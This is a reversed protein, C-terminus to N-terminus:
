RGSGAQLHQKFAQLQAGLRREARMLEQHRRFRRVSRFYAGFGPGPGQVAACLGAETDDGPRSGAREGAAALRAAVADEDEGGRKRPGAEQQRAKRPLPPAPRFGGTATSYRQALEAPSATPPLVSSQAVGGALDRALQAVAPHYHRQLLSLEWLPVALAGAEAPDEVDPRYTRYGSPGGAENELAARLRPVRRLLRHLVCLMGLAAGPDRVAGAASALRKAFAAQRSADLARRDLLMGDLLSALLPALRGAAARRRADLARYLHQYFAGRDVNLAEGQGSLIRSATLLTRVREAAPLASSALLQDLVAMLDGFYEVGILGAHAALQELVPFLLPFKKAFRAASMPLGERRAVLGSATAHKLVRFYVEFLAELSASQHYQRSDQDEYARAEEFAHDVDDKKREKKKMKKRAAKAEQFDKASTIDATHVSALVAVVEPPCVCSRAKVLDALLQVAETVVGGDASQSSLLSRLADVVIRRQYQRLLGQEYDRLAQVERSVVVELERETPPRIRYGPVVDALVAAATVLALRAVLPDKASCLAVIEHLQALHREPSGLFTQAALALTEKAAALRSAPTDAPAPPGARGGRAGRAGRVLAGDLSKTPLAAARKQEVPAQSVTRPRREYAEAESDSDTGPLGESAESDSADAPAPRTQAQPVAKKQAAPKQQTQSVSRDLQKTKLSTLFGLNKGQSAVFELDEDSLDSIGDGEDVASPPLPVVYVRKGARWSRTPVAIRSTLQELMAM